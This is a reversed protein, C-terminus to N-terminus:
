IGAVNVPLYESASLLRRLGGEQRDSRMPQVPHLNISRVHRVGPQIRTKRGIVAIKFVLRILDASQQLGSFIHYRGHQCVSPVTSFVSYETVAIVVSGFQGKQKLQIDVVPVPLPLGHARIRLEPIM